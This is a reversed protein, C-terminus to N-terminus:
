ISLKPYRIYQRQGAIIKKNKEMMYDYNLQTMREFDNDEVLDLAILNKQMVEKNDTIGKIFRKEERSMSSWEQTKELSTEYAQIEENSNLLIKLTQYQYMNMLNATKKTKNLDEETIHKRILVDNNYYDKYERLMENYKQQVEWFRAFSDRGQQVKPDASKVTISLPKTYYSLPIKLRDMGINFINGSLDAFLSLNPQAELVEELKEDGLTLYATAVSENNKTFGAMYYPTGNVVWYVPNVFVGETWKKHKKVKKMLLKTTQDHM